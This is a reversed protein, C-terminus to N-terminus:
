PFKVLDGGHLQTWQQCFLVVQRQRPMPILISCTLDVGSTKILNLPINRRFYNYGDFLLFLWGFCCKKGFFPCFLDLKGLFFHCIPCRDIGSLKIKQTDCDM